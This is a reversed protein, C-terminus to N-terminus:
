KSKELQRAKRIAMQRYSFYVAKRRVRAKTPHTRFCDKQHYSQIRHRLRRSHGIYIPTGYKNYLTYSGSKNPIRGKRTNTPTLRRM